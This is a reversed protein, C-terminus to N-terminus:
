EYTECPRVDVAMGVHEGYNAAAHKSAVETAEEIDSAEIIFFAGAQQPSNSIPGASVVAVGNSPRISRWVEPAAFSGVVTVKGTDQLLADYPHCAAGVEAVQEQSLEAFQEANYYCLCLFKM